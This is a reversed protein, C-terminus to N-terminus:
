AVKFQLPWPPRRSLEYAWGITSDVGGCLRVSWRPAAAASRQRSRRWEDTLQPAVGGAAYSLSASTPSTVVVEGERSSRDWGEGVVAARVSTQLSPEATPSSGGRSGGGRLAAARDSRRPSAAIERGRREGEATCSAEAVDESRDEGNGGEGEGGSTTWRWWREAREVEVRGSRRDSAAAPLQAGAM